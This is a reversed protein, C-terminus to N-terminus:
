AEIVQHSRAQSQRSGKQNYLDPAAVQGRMINLLRGFIQRSRGIMKGNVVNAQQCAEFEATLSQWLQPLEPSSAGKLLSEWSAKTATLGLGSLLRERKKRNGDLIAMQQSKAEILQSQRQHNRAKLAEREQQLLESLQRTAQLDQQLLVEIAREYQANLPSNTSM